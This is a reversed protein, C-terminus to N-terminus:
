LKRGLSCPPTQADEALHLRELREWVARDPRPRRSGLQAGCQGITEDRREIAGVCDLAGQQSVSPALGQEIMVFMWFAM